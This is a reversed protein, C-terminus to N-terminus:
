ALACACYAGAGGYLPYEPYPCPPCCRHTLNALTLLPYPTKPTEHLTPTPNIIALPPKPVAQSIRTSNHLLSYTGNWVSKQPLQLCNNQYQKAVTNRQRPWDGLNADLSSSLLFTIKSELSYVRWYLVVGYAMTVVGASRMPTEWEWGRGGRM